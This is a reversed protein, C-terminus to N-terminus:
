NGLAFQLALLVRLLNTLVLLATPLVYLWNALANLSAPLNALTNLSTPLARWSNALVNLPAPLNALAVALTAGVPCPNWRELQSREPSLYYRQHQQRQKKYTHYPQPSINM